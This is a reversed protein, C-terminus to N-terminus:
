HQSTQQSMYADSPMLSNFFKMVYWLSKATFDSQRRLAKVDTATTNCVIYYLQMLGVFPKSYEFTAVTSKSHMQM